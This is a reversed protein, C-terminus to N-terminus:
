VESFQHRHHHSHPTRDDDSDDVQVVTVHRQTDSDNNDSNSRDSYKSAGGGKCWMVDDKHGEPMDEVGFEHPDRFIDKEELTDPM